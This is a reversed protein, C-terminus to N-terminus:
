YKRANIVNIVSTASINIGSAIFSDGTHIFFQVMHVLYAHLDALETDTLVRTCKEHALLLNAYYKADKM